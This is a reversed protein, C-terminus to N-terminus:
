QFNSMNEKMEISFIQINLYYLDEKLFLFHIMFLTYDIDYFMKSTHM